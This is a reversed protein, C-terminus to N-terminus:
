VSMQAMIKSQIGRIHAAILGVVVLFLGFAQAIALGIGGTSPLNGREISTGMVGTEPKSTNTSLTEGNDEPTPTPTPTPNTTKTVGYVAVYSIDPTQGGGNVFNVTGTSGTLKGSNKTSAKLCFSMSIPNNSSDYFNVTPGSIVVKITKGDVTITKNSQVKTVSAANHDTCHMDAHQNNQTTNKTLTAVLQHSSNQSIQTFQGGTTKQEVEALKDKAVQSAQSPLEPMTIVQSNTLQQANKKIQGPANQHAEDKHGGAVVPSISSLMIFAALSVASITRFTSNM